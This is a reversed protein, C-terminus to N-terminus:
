DLGVEDLLSDLAALVDTESIMKMSGGGSVHRHPTLRYGFENSDTPGFLGVGPVGCFDSAHLFCSDVGLFIDAKATLCLSVYLGIKYCLIVRNGLRGGDLPQPRWGVVLVVFDPHRELFADLVAVFREARWMKAEATDAHVVLVRAEPPILGRIREARRQADPPFEPPAAFDELRLSPHLYRPLSFALDSSHRGYDLPLVVNYDPFFGISTKPALQQRLLTLSGSQWPVLSLFLDCDHVTEAVDSQWDDAGWVNSVLIQRLPLGRFFVDARGRQCVLSLRQPYLAALARIAPLNLFHDGIGNVFFAVPNKARLLSM